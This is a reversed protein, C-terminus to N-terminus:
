GRWMELGAVLKWLVPVHVFTSQQGPLEGVAVPSRHGLVPSAKVTPGELEGPHPEPSVDLHLVFGVGPSQTGRITPRPSIAIHRCSAFQPPKRTSTLTLPGVDTRSQQPFLPCTQGCHHPSGCFM